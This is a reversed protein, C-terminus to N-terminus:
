NEGYIIRDIYKKIESLAMVYNKSLDPDEQVLSIIYSLFRVKERIAKLEKTNDQTYETDKMKLFEKAYEFAHEKLYFSKGEVEWRDLYDSKKLSPPLITPVRRKTVFVSNNKNHKDCVIFSDESDILIDFQMCNSKQNGTTVSVKMLKRLHAVSASAVRRLTPIREKTLVTRVSENQKRFLGCETDVATNGRKGFLWEM